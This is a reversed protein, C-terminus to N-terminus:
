PALAWHRELEGARRWNDTDLKILGRRQLSRLARLVTTHMTHDYAWHDDSWKFPYDQPHCWYENDRTLVQPAQELLRAVGLKRAIDYASPSYPDNPHATTSEKIVALVRKQFQGIGRSM